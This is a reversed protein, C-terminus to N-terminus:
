VASFTQRAILEYTTPAFLPRARRGAGVDNRLMGDLMDFFM